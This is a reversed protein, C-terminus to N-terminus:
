EVEHSGRKYITFHWLLEDETHLYISMCGLRLLWKDEAGQKLVQYLWNSEM